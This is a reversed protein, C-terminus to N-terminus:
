ASYITQYAWRRVVPAWTDFHEAALYGIAMAGLLLALTTVTRTLTRVRQIRDRREQRVLFDNVYKASDLHQYYQKGVDEETTQSHSSMPLTCLANWSALFRSARSFPHTASDVRKSFGVISDTTNGLVLRPKGFLMM